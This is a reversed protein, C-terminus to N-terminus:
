VVEWYKLGYQLALEEGRRIFRTTYLGLHQDVEVNALLVGRADREVYVQTGADWCPDNIWQVGSFGEFGDVFRVTGDHPDDVEYVYLGRGHPRKCFEDIDVDTGLTDGEYGALPECNARDRATYLAM